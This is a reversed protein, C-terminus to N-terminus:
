FTIIIKVMNLELLKESAEGNKLYDIFKTINTKSAVIDKSVKRLNFREDIQPCLM